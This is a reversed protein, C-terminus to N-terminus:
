GPSSPVRRRTPNHVTARVPPPPEPSTIVGWRALTAAILLSLDAKGRRRWMWADGVRRKSAAGVADNLRYDDRHTLRRHVAADHFEGCARVEDPLNVMRVRHQREGGTVRGHRNHVPTSPGWATARELAPVASAAPDGRGILINAGWRNALEATRAILAALDSSHEIVELPTVGDFLGAAVIGGRDREPTFSLGLAVAQGPVLDEDKCQAWSIADIGVLQSVDVWINLHERRFTDADQTLAADALAASSVGGPLDLSPNADAWARRDLVDADTEGAYEIWCVTSDPNEVELRGIDTYHRWLVSDIDGANSLVWLQAHPRAVLTGQLAGIIAMTPHAHAEDIVALDVSLSRAAKKASPTVPMYRSGNRMVLMERHNARDIHSVHDAFPTDMLIEVHEGWKTRAVTRDQATYAVTQRRVILQRAIRVCVLTTKGNQRAVGVGITRYFPLRTVYDYEGAVDAADRQWPFYEWGLMEAVRADIGGRTPREPRRRTGWRPPATEPAPPADATM